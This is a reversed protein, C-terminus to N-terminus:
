SPLLVINPPFLSFSLFLERAFVLQNAQGSAADGAAWVGDTGKVKLFEDVILEGKENLLNKETVWETNSILGLTAIYLDVVKKEGNSLSLETKGDATKTSSLVKTSYIVDIKM